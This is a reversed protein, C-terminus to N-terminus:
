EAKKIPVWREFRNGDKPNSNEKEIQTLPSDPGDYRVYGDPMPVNEKYDHTQGIGAYNQTLAIGDGSYLWDHTVVLYECAPFKALSFGEPVKETGDAIKGVSYIQEDNKRYWVIYDYTGDFGAAEATKFYYDWVMGFDTNPTVAQEVGLFLFADLRAQFTVIAPKQNKKCM